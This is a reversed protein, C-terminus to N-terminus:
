EEISRNTEKYSIKAFIKISKFKKKSRTTVQIFGYYFSKRELIIIKM